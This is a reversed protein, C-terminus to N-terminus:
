GDIAKARHGVLHEPELCAINRYSGPETASTYVLRPLDDPVVDADGPVLQILEESAKCSEGDVLYSSSPSVVLSILRFYEDASSEVRSESRAGAIM